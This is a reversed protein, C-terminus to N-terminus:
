DNGRNGYDVERGAMNCVCNWVFFLLLFLPLSLNEGGFVHFLGGAPAPIGCFVPNKEFLVQKLAQM